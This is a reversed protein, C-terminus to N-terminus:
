TSRSNPSPPENSELFEGFRGRHLMVMASWALATESPLHIPQWRSRRDGVVIRFVDCVHRIEPEREIPIFWLYCGAAPGLFCGDMLERYALPNCAHM